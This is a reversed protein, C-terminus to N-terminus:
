VENFDITGNTDKDYEALKEVLEEESVDVGLSNMISVIEKPEVKFIMIIGKFVLVIYKRVQGDHNCDFYNFCEAFVKEQKTSFGKTM